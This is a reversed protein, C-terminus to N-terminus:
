GAAIGGSQFGLTPLLASVFLSTIVAGSGAVALIVLLRALTPHDNRFARWRLHTQLMASSLQGRMDDISAAM